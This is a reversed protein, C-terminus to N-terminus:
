ETTKAYERAKRLARAMTPMSVDYFEAMERQKMYTKQLLLTELLGKDNTDLKPPRGSKGVPVLKYEIGDIVTRKYM